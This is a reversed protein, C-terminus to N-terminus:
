NEDLLEVEDNSDDRKGGYRLWKERFFKVVEEIPVLDMLFWSRLVMLCRLTTFSLNHRRKTVQLGGHSFLREVDVSAAPASTFELGMKALAGRATVKSGPLDLRSTWYAIPDDDSTPADLYANLVDDTMNRGFNDVDSFSDDDSDDPDLTCARATRKSGDDEILPAYHEDWYEHIIERATNVWKTPWNEQRFYALKYRPHLV